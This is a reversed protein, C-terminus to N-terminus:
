VVVSLAPTTESSALTVMGNLSKFIEPFRNISPFPSPFTLPELVETASPVCSYTVKTSPPVVTAEM